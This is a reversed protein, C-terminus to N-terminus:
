PKGRVVRVVTVDDNKLRDTDRLERVMATLVDTEGPTGLPAFWRAPDRSEETERLFWAALADTMLYLADGSAITGRHTQIHAPTVPTKTGLLVPAGAFDASRTLPFAAVIRHSEAEPRLHFLACDGVALAHYEGTEVTVTVGILAAHSGYQAVKAQAHWPLTETAVQRTWVKALMRRREPLTPATLLGAVYDATLLNAWARAFTADTAGDAVAVRLPFTNLDSAAFADEYEGETSGAKPTHWAHVVM